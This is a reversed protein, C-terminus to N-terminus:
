AITRDPRNAAAEAGCGANAPGTIQQDDFVVAREDAFGASVGKIEITPPQMERGIAAAAEFDARQRKSEVGLGARLQMGTIVGIATAM